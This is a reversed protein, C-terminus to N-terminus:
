DTSDITLTEPKQQECPTTPQKQDGHHVLGSELPHDGDWTCIRLVVVNEMHNCRLVIAHYLFCTGDRVDNQTPNPRRNASVDQLTVTAIGDFRYTVCQLAEQPKPQHFAWGFILNALQCSLEKPKGPVHTVNKKNSSTRSRCMGASRCAVAELLPECAAYSQPEVERRWSTTTTSWWSSQISCWSSPISCRDRELLAQNKTIAPIKIQLNKLKM